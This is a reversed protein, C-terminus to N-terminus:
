RSLLSTSSVILALLLIGEVLVTRLSWGRVRGAHGADRGPGANPIAITEM